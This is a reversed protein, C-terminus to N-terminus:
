SRLHTQRRYYWLDVLALAAFPGYIVTEITMLRTSPAFVYDTVLYLLLCAITLWLLAYRELLRRRRVLDLVVFFLVAAALLSVLQLRSM